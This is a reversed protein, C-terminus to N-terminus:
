PCESPIRTALLPRSGVLDHDNKRLREFRAIFIGSSPQSKLSTKSASLTNELYSGAQLPMWLGLDSVKDVGPGEFGQSIPGSLVM